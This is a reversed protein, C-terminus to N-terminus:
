KVSLELLPPFQLLSTSPPSVMKVEGIKSALSGEVTTEYQRQCSLETPSAGFSSGKRTCHEEFVPALQTSKSTTWPSEASALPPHNKLSNKIESKTGLVLDNWILNMLASISFPDTTSDATSPKLSRAHLSGPGNHAPSTLPFPLTSNVSRTAKSEAHPLEHVPHGSSTSPDPVTSNLSKTSQERKRGQGYSFEQGISQAFSGGFEDPAKKRSCIGTRIKFQDQTTSQISGQIGCILCGTSALQQHVVLDAAVLLM